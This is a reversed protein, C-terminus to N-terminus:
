ISNVWEHSIGNIAEIGGLASTTPKPLTGFQPVGCGSVGSMLQHSPACGSEIGGLTTGTPKPLRAAPLTGSSINSANLAANAAMHPASCAGQSTMIQGATGNGIGGFTGANNYQMQNACGGPGSGGCGGSSATTLRGYADVTLNTNTYSGPTVTTTPLGIVVNGTTPSATVTGNGTVSQVAASGSASVVQTTNLELLTSSRAYGIYQSWVAGPATPSTSLAGGAGVYYQQYKAKTRRM